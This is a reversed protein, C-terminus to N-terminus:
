RGPAPAIIVSNLDELILEKVIPATGWQSGEMLSFYNDKGPRMWVRDFVRESTLDNIAAFWFIRHTEKETVSKLNLMREKTKAVVLVRFFNLGFRQPYQGSKMYHLYARVKSQFRGNSMTSRDLELFCGFLKGNHVYRFYGDPRFVKLARRRISEDFIEYEQLWDSAGIWREIGVGNYQRTAAEHLIIRVENVALDHNLFFEKRSACIRQKKRVALTDLGNKEAVTEIGKPGLFYLAMSSGCLVPLFRRTLYQNDYLRRLRLNIRTVCNIHFLRQIQERTLLGFDYLAYM